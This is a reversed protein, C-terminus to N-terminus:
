QMGADLQEATREFQPFVLRLRSSGLEFPMGFDPHLVEAACGQRDQERIRANPDSIGELYGPEVVERKWAEVVDADQLAALAVLDTNSAGHERYAECFADVEEHMRSPLYPRYEEMKPM